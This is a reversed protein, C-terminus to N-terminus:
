TMVKIEDRIDEIMGKQRNMAREFMSLRSWYKERILAEDFCHWVPLAFPILIGYHVM